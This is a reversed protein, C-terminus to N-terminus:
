CPKNTSVYWEICRRKNWAQNGNVRGSAPWCCKLSPYRGVVSSPFHRAHWVAANFALDFACHSKLGWFFGKATSNLRRYIRNTYNTTEVNAVMLNSVLSNVIEQQGSFFGGYCRQFWRGCSCCFIPGSIEPRFVSFNGWRGISNSCTPTSSAGASPQLDTGGTTLWSVSIQGPKKGLIRLGEMQNWQPIIWM